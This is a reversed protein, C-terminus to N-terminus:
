RKAENKEPLRGILTKFEDGVGERLFLLPSYTGRKALSPNLTLEDHSITQDIM